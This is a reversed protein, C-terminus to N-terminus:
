GTPEPKREPSSDPGFPHKNSARKPARPKRTGAAKGDTETAAEARDTPRIGPLSEVAPRLDKLGLVSYHKMTLEVSRHGLLEQAKKPHVGARALESGFRTRLSHFDAVRGLDDRYPLPDPDAATLGREERLRANAAALDVWLMKAAHRM